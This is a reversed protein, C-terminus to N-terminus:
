RGCGCCVRKAHETIQWTWTTRGEDTFWVETAEIRAKLEEKGRRDGYPAVAALLLRDIELMKYMTEFQGSRAPDENDYRCAPLSEKDGDLRSQKGAFSMSMNRVHGGYYDM